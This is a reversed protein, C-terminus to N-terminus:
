LNVGFKLRAEYQTKEILHLNRETQGEYKEGGGQIQQLFTLTGWFKQGGYHLSPGAQFTWRELGVETENEQAYIGEIGAFWNPAFRYSAGAGLDLEIEMEPDTPWEFGEPLDDIPDREARTAEIGINGALILQGDLLYKQLLLKEELSITTKSQGSHSDLTGYDFETYLTLGVPARAPSLINYRLEGAVGSFKLTFENDKPIYADILIGQTDLKMANLYFAGAFRDTFGREIETSFDWAHYHGTGKDSRSTTQLYLETAGKPLPEAGKVYGFLNEDAHALLSWATAAVAVVCRAAHASKL